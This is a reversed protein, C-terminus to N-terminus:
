FSMTKKHTHWIQFLCTSDRSRMCLVMDAATHNAHIFNTPSKKKMWKLKPLMMFVNDVKVEPYHSSLLFLLLLLLLLM